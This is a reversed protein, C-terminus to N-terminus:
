KQLRGRRHPQQDRCDPLRLNSPRKRDNIPRRPVMSLAGTERARLCLQSIHLVLNESTLTQNVSPLRRDGSAKAAFFPFLSVDNMVSSTTPSFPQVPAVVRQNCRRDPKAELHFRIEIASGVHSDAHQRRIDPLLDRLRLFDAQAFQVAPNIEDRRSSSNRQHSLM